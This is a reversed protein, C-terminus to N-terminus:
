QGQEKIILIPIKVEEKGPYDTKIIIETNEEENVNEKLNLVISKSYDNDERFFYSLFKSELSIGKIKFPKKHADNLYITRTKQFQGPKVRELCESSIWFKAGENGVYSKGEIEKYIYLNNLDVFKNFLEKMEFDNYFYCDKVVKVRNFIKNLDFVIERESVVFPDKIEFYLPLLINLTEYVNTKLAVFFSYQGIEPAKEPSIKIFFTNKENSPIIEKKFDVKKEGSIEIGEIKYETVKDSYFSVQYLLYVPDPYYSYFLSKEKLLKAEVPKHVIGEIIFRAKRIDEEGEYLYDVNVGRKIKGSLDKTNLIVNIEGVGKGEIEEPFSLIDLHDTSSINIIKIKRSSDNQFIFTHPVMKETLVEGFNYAEKIEVDNLLFLLLFLIM